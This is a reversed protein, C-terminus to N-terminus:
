SISEDFPEIEIGKVYLINDIKLRRWMNKDIDWVVVTTDNAPIIRKNPNASPKYDIKSEILTVKRVTVDGNKDEYCINVVNNKFLDVWDHHTLKAM